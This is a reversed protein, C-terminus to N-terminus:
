PVVPHHGAPDSPAKVTLARVDAQIEDVLNNLVGPQILIYDGAALEVREEGVVSSVRGQLLLTWETADSRKPRHDGEQGVRLEWYKVELDQTFRDSEGAEFFRGVIWGRRDLTRADEELSGVCYGHLKPSSM